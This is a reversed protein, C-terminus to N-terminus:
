KYKSPAQNPQDPGSPADSSRSSGRSGRSSSSGAQVGLKQATEANLAGTPQLNSATQFSKLAEKTRAGMVGDVPGPDHGKDKLAEQVEKVNGTNGDM